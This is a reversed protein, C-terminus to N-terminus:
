FLIQNDLEQTADGLTGENPFFADLKEDCYSKGKQRWSVSEGIRVLCEPFDENFRFTVCSNNVIGHFVPTSSGFYFIIIPLKM